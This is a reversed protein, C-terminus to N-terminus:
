YALVAKLRIWQLRGGKQLIEIHGGLPAIANKAQHISMCSVTM